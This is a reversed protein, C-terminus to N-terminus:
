RFYPIMLYLGFLVFIGIAGLLAFGLGRRLPTPKRAGLAPTFFWNSASMLTAIVVTASISVVGVLLLAMWNISALFGAM